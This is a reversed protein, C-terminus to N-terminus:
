EKAGTSMVSKKKGPKRRAPKFRRLSPNAVEDMGFNLLTFSFMLVSIMISPPLIWWWLGTLYAENNIAWYLMTGWNIQLLNGVGLYEVFTLGMTGYMATFFFNSVIVPFIARIIQRFIISFRSEGILVSSLIFDRKSVSMTVSRFTRAGFAWGTIVLITIIPLYGLSQHIGLFFTGFLMILLIGPIVLFINVISNIVANMRESAFGSAVGVVVSVLTGLIGVVFGVMLTPGAGALLQSLVDQGYITTGLLHASTPPQGRAFADSNPNYPTVFIGIVSLIVLGVLIGFGVKAKNNNLLLILPKSASGIKQALGGGKANDRKDPTGEDIM